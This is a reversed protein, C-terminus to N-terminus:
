RRRRTAVGMGILVLFGLAGPEPVASVASVSFHYTQINDQAGTVQVFYTGASVSQDLLSEAGGLGNVNSSGLLTVGDQDFFQLTLDSLSSTDFQSTPGNQAGELYEPGVPTLILDVLSDSTVTFSLFDIDSNDDISIFDTDADNVLLSNSLGVASTGIELTGGDAVTGLIIASSFTDNGGNKEYVDGYQRQLGLIDDFQPGDFGLNIFPEMLKTNDVPDTHAQGIGHGHEHAFVNRTRLSNGNFFNDGTDIVMDGTNPGFNFALTGSNGDIFRGGIRVDGRAGAGGNTAPGGALNAGDDNPEYIYDLGGLESFRDFTQDFEQWWTRQTLDSGGPSTGNHYIEDFREILDSGAAPGIGFSGIFTGDPVVSWTLTTADGQQLGGGNTVTNGWRPNNFFRFQNAQQNLHAQRAARGAADNSYVAGDIQAQVSTAGATVLLGALLTLIKKM